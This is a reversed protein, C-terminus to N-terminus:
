LLLVTRPNSPVSGERSWLEADSARHAALIARRLGARVQASSHAYPWSGGSLTITLGDRQLVYGEPDDATGRFWLGPGDPVCPAARSESTDGSGELLPGCPDVLGPTVTEAGLWATSMEMNKGFLAMLAKGDWTYAEQRLGPLEVVQALARSPIGNGRIWEQAAVRAQTSGIPVAAAYVALLGAAAVVAAVRTRRVLAAGTVLAPLAFLLCSLVGWRFPAPRSLLLMVTVVAPLTGAVVRGASGPWSYRLARVAPRLVPVAVVLGVVVLAASLTATVGDDGASSWWLVGTVPAIAAVAVSGGVLFGAWLRGRDKGRGATGVGNGAAGGGVGAGGGAGAGGVRVQDM